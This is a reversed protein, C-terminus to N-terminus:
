IKLMESKIDYELAKKLLAEASSIRAEVQKFFENLDASSGEAVLMLAKRCYDSVSAVYDKAEKVDKDTKDDYLYVALIRLIGNQCRAINSLLVVGKKSHINFDSASIAEQFVGCLKRLKALRKLTHKLMDSGVGTKNTVFVTVFYAVIWMICTYLMKELASM